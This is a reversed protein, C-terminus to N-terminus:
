YYGRARIGRQRSARNRARISDRNKQRLYRVPAATPSWYRYPARLVYYSIPVYGTRTSASFTAYTGGQVVISGGGASHFPQIPDATDGYEPVAAVFGSAIDVTAELVLVPATIAPLAFRSGNSPLEESGLDAGTVTEVQTGLTSIPAWLSELVDDVNLYTAPRSTTYYARLYYGGALPQPDGEHTLSARVSWTVEDQEWEWVPSGVVEARSDPDSPARDPHRVWDIGQVGAPSGSGDSFQLYTREHYADGTAIAGQAFDTIEEGHHRTVTAGGSARVAPDAFATATSITRPYATAAAALDARAMAQAQTFAEDRDADDEPWVIRNSGSGGDYTMEVNPEHRVWSTAPIPGLPTTPTVVESWGGGYGGPPWIRLRIQDLVISGSLIEVRVLPMEDM